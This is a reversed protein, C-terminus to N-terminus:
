PHDPGFMDVAIKWDGGVRRWTVAYKGADHVPAAGKPTITVSYHGVETALDCSRLIKDPTLTLDFKGAGLFATWFKEIDATGHVAPGNPPLVMADDVYASMMGAVDGRGVAAMFRANAARIAAEVDASTQMTSCATLLVALALVRKM